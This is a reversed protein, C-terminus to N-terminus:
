SLLKTVEKREEDSLMTHLAGYDTAQYIEDKFYRPVVHFHLHRINHYKGQKLFPRYNQLLDSGGGFVQYIKQRYINVLKFIDDQEAQTLQWPEWVHRKPIVLLHGKVTRPSSLFVLSLQSRHLLDRSQELGCFPCDRSTMKLSESLNEFEVM